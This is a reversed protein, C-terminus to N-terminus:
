RRSSNAMSLTAARVIDAPTFPKRIVQNPVSALFREASETFTGGTVFIFRREEGPRLHRVHNFVDMGTLDPMVLDSFVLDYTGQELAQIAERGSHVVHVDHGVMYECVVAAVASEDDAVLVRCRGLRELPSPAPTPASARAGISVIAAPLAVRFTTGAPSSELVSLEGGLGTVVERCIYLGLGTGVGRAKTTVFPDFIRDALENAIGVGTDAVDVLLRGKSDTGTTITIFNRAVDGEPLAQAANVVLNLFVQGLRGESALVTPVDGYHRVVRARYRTEAQAMRLATDILDHIDLLKRQDADVHAFMSLDSVVSRIRSIGELAADLREKLALNDYRETARAAWEVNALLYTLPNNIEHAIGATLTGISAMRDTIAVHAELARQETVDSGVFTVGAIQGDVMRPAARVAWRVGNRPGRVEYSESEGTALVRHFAQEITGRDEAVAQAWVDQDLSHAYREDSVYRIRGSRDATIIVSPTSELISRCLEESHRLADETRKRSTIDLLTVIAGTVDGGCTARLPIATFIAWSITGDTQRVGITMPPQAEGTALARTVPYDEVSCPTGDEFVTELAFDHTYRKTLADYGLGLLRLAERNAGLVAGSTAVHVFGGPMAEIIQRNVEESAMLALSMANRQESTREEQGM